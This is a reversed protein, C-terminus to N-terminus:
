VLIVSVLMLSVYIFFLTVEYKLLVRRLAACERDGRSRSRVGRLDRMASAVPLDRERVSRILLLTAIMECVVCLLIVNSTMWILIHWLLVDSPADPKINDRLLVAGVMVALWLLSLGPVILITHWTLLTRHRDVFLLWGRWYGSRGTSEDGNIKERVDRGAAAIAIGLLLAINCGAHIIMPIYHLGDTHSSRWSGGTRETMIIALIVASSAAIASAICVAIALPTNQLSSSMASVYRRVIRAKNM